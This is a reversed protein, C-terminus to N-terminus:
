VPSHSGSSESGVERVHTLEPRGAGKKMSSDEIVQLEGSSAEPDPIYSVDGDQAIAKPKLLPWHGHKENYRM